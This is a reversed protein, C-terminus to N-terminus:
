PLHAVRPAGIVFPPNSVVLDFTEGAVPELLDGERLDIEVESLAATLGALQLARRSVDTGVVTGSHRSAHLAQVGCGTGVDLTRGVPDGRRSSRSRRPRGASM